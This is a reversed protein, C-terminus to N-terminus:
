GVWIAVAEGPMLIDNDEAKIREMSAMVMENERLGPSPIRQSTDAFNCVV